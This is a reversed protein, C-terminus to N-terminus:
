MRGRTGSRVLGGIYPLRGDNGSLAPSARVLESSPQPLITAYAPSAGSPLTYFMSFYIRSGVVAVLNLVAGALAMRAVHEWHSHFSDDSTMGECSPRPSGVLGPTALAALFGTVMWNVTSAVASVIIWGIRAGRRITWGQSEGQTSPLAALSNIFNFDGDSDVLDLISMLLGTGWRLVGLLVLTMAVILSAKVRGLGNNLSAKCTETWESPYADVSVFAVIIMIASAVLCAAVLFQGISRVATM